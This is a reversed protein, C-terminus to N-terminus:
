HIRGMLFSLMRIYLIDNYEYVLLRLTVHTGVAWSSSHSYMHVLSVITILLSCILINVTMEDACRPNVAKDCSHGISVEYSMYILGYYLKININPLESLMFFM